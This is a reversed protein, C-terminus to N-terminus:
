VAATAPRHRKWWERRREENWPAMGDVADLRLSLDRASAPRDGPNKALCALVIHDRAAPVPLETRASPATASAQIHQLLLGQATDASFVLQGTLLWYAVCGLAYIDARGDLAEAGLAQEPAMFAPTGHIVTERTLATDM